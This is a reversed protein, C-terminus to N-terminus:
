HGGTRLAHVFAYVVLPVAILVYIRLGVLLARTWPGLARRPLARGTTAARQAPELASLIDARETM